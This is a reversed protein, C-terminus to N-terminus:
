FARGFGGAARLYTPRASESDSKWVVNMRSAGGAKVQRLDQHLGLLGKALNKRLLGGKHGTDSCWTKYRDYVDSFPMWESQKHDSPAVELMDEYFEAVQDTTSRWERLEELSSSPTTLAHSAIAALGSLVFWSVIHAHEEAVLVRDFREIMKAPAVANPFRIVTWRRWYGKSRDDSKPLANASFIHGATPRFTTSDKYLGRATVRDGTIASKIQGSKIIESEEIEPVINCMKGALTIFHQEKAMEQPALCAVSGPPMCEVLLDLFVSKGNNGDGVLMFAKQYDTVRGLLCLGAFECLAQGRDSADATGEFSDLLYGAFRIPAPEAVFPFPFAFRVRHDDTLEEPGAASIFQDEFAVGATATEFFTPEAVHNCLTTYVSKQKSANVKYTKKEKGEGYQAGDFRTVCKYVKWPEVERWVHSADALWLKGEASVVGPFDENIIREAVEQDSGIGLYDAALRKTEEDSPTASDDIIM